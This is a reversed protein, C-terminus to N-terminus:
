QKECIMLCNQVLFDANQMGKVSGDKLVQWKNLIPAAAKLVVRSSQRGRATSIAYFPAPPLTTFANTVSAGGCLVFVVLLPVVLRGAMKLDHWRGLHDVLM